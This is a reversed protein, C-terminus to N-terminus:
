KVLGSFIVSRTILTRLSHASSCPRFRDQERVLRYDWYCVVLSIGLCVCPFFFSLSLCSFIVSPIWFPPLIPHTLIGFFFIWIHGVHVCFLFLSVTPAPASIASLLPFLLAQKLPNRRPIARGVWTRDVVSVGRHRLSSCLQRTNLLSAQSM